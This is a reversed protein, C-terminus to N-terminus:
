KRRRKLTRQGGGAEISEDGANIVTVPCGSRQRSSLFRDLRDIALDNEGEIFRISRLAPLVDAFMDLASSIRPALRGSLRLTEVAPFLRLIPQWEAVSDIEGFVDDGHAFLDDVNSFMAILQSLLYTMLRVQILQMLAKQGLINLSLSRKGQPCDLKFYSNMDKTFFSVDARTFQDLKLNETREIFQSFRPVQLGPWVYEISVNDLLPTDIQTLFHELYESCGNYHFNTLAPLVSRMLSDSHSRRQDPEDYFSISLTTLRTLVALGGVLAEPSIYGKPPINKLELTVLNRTSLLFTPLQPFSIYSLRFHKLRVASNGMFGPPLQPFSIYSPRFHKLRVVSNGMFGPPNDSFASWGDNWGLDLHTLAPFPEQVFAAVHEILSDGGRIRIRHVLSPHGLAAVINDEDEHLLHGGLPQYDLILPLTVPWFPLNTRVPTGSSCSLHLDLRRPSALITRRWKQCVHVLIQWYSVSLGTPDCLCLDFIDLLVNDPLMDIPVVHRHIKFQVKGFKLVTEREPGSTIHCLLRACIDATDREMGERLTKIREDECNSNCSAHIDDILSFLSYGNLSLCQLVNDLEPRLQDM